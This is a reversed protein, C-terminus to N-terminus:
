SASEIARTVLTGTLARLYRASAHV